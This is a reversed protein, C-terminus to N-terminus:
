EVELFSTRKRTASTTASTGGLRRKIALHERAEILADRTQDTMMSLYAIKEEIAAQREPALDASLTPRRVVRRRVPRASSALDAREGHKKRV